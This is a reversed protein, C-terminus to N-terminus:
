NKTDLWQIKFKNTDWLIKDISKFMGESSWDSGSYSASVPHSIKFLWTFPPIYKELKHAEKGLLVIPVGTGSLVEEFLYKMFPEWKLNHSGPKLAECTLGSNLLLVGQKALFKLDPNKTYNLNIGNYLEQECAQYWQFLSPQPYNTISCSMLLGDAIPKNDKLTHYPSFGCLVLKLEDFSTEKFCRWVNSSLPVIVKGRRSEFKLFEYIKDCQESEIWPRIKSHWSDHFLESFFEWKM